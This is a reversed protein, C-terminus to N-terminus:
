KSRFLYFFNLAHVYIIIWVFHYEQKSNLMDWPETSNKLLGISISKKNTLWSYVSSFHQKYKTKTYYKIKNM